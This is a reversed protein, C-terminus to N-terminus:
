PGRRRGATPSELFGGASADVAGCLAPTPSMRELRIADDGRHAVVERTADVTGIVACDLARAVFQAQVREVHEERVALLYTVAEALLGRQRNDVQRFRLLLRRILRLQAM